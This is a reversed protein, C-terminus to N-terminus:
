LAVDQPGVEVIAENLFRVGLGLQPDWSSSFLLGVVRDGSGFSRKILIDTPEILSALEAPESIVPALEDASDAGFQDRWEELESQYYSFIAAEAQAILEDRRADFAVFAERQASEIEDGEDCPVVLNVNVLNGFLKYRYRGVWGYDYVMAGFLTDEM